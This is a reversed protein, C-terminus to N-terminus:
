GAALMRKRDLLRGPGGQISQDFEIGLVDRSIAKVALHLLLFVLLFFSKFPELLGMGDIRIVEDRVFIQAQNEVSQTAELLCLYGLASGLLQLLLQGAQLFDVPLQQFPRLVDPKAGLGAVDEKLSALM